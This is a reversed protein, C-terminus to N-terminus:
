LPIGIGVATYAAPPVTWAEKSEPPRTFPPTLCSLLTLVSSLTPLTGLTFLEKVKFASHEINPIFLGDVDNLDACVSM